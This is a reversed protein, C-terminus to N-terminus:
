DEFPPLGMRERGVSMLEHRNKMYHTEAFWYIKRTHKRVFLWFIRRRRFKRVQKYEEKNYRAM